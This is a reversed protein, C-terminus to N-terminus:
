CYGLCQTARPHWEGYGSNHAGSPVSEAPRPDENHLRPASGVSFVAELLEEIAAHTDTVVSAYKGLQERAIAM